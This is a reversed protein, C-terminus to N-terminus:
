LNVSHCPHMLVGNVVVFTDEESANELNRGDYGYEYSANKKIAYREKATTYMAKKQEASYERLNPIQVVTCTMTFKVRSTNSSKKDNDNSTPVNCDVVSHTAGVLTATMVENLCMTARRKKKKYYEKSVPMEAEQLAARWDFADDDNDNTSVSTPVDDEIETILSPESQEIIDNTDYSECTISPVSDNDVNTFTVTSLEQLSGTTMVNDYKMPMPTFSENFPPLAEWEM